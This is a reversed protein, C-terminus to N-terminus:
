VMLLFFAGGHFGHELAKDAISFDVGPGVQVRIGYRGCRALQVEEAHQLAFELVETEALDAEIRYVGKDRGEQWAVQRGILLRWSNAKDGMHIRGVEISFIDLGLDMCVIVALINDQVRVQVNDHPYGFKRVQRM